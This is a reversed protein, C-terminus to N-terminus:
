HKSNCTWFRTGTSMVGMEDVRGDNPALTVVYGAGPDLTDETMPTLGDYHVEVRFSKIEMVMVSPLDLVQHYQWFKTVCM